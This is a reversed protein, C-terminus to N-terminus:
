AGRRNPRRFPGTVEYVAGTPRARQSSFYLRRGSPDFAAGTLESDRHEPGTVSLFRTAEGDPTIVGMHIEDTAIDECVFLEGAGSGTLQDVRVLPAGRRALGDYIVSAGRPPTM